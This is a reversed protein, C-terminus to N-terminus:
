DAENHQDAYETHMPTNDGLKNAMFLSLEMSPPISHCFKTTHLHRFIDTYTIRGYLYFRFETGIIAKAVEDPSFYRVAQAVGFCDKHHQYLSIKSPPPIPLEPFAFFPPLPYPFIDLVGNDILDYAPTQGHNIMSFRFKLDHPGILNAPIASVYARLQRRSADEAGSVLDKTALWLLLTAGALLLEIGHEEWWEWPNYQHYDSADTSPKTNTPSIFVQGHPATERASQKGTTAIQHPTTSQQNPKDTTEGPTPTQGYSLTSGALILCVLLTWM